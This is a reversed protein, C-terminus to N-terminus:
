SYVRTTTHADSGLIVRFSLPLLSLFTSRVEKDLQALYYGTKDKASLYAPHSQVKASANQAAAQAKQAATPETNYASM